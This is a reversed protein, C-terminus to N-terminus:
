QQGKLAEHTPPVLGSAIADRAIIQACRSCLADIGADTSVWHCGGDCPHDDTCGCSVCSAEAPVLTVDLDLATMLGRLTALRPSSAGREIDSLTGGSCGAHAGLVAQNIRRERRIARLSEILPDARPRSHRTPRSTM